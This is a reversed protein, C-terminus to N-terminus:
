AHNLVKKAHPPADKDEIKHYDMSIANESIDMATISKTRSYSRMMLPAYEPSPNQSYHFEPINEPVGTNNQVWDMFLAKRIEITQDQQFSSSSLLYAQDAHNAHFGIESMTTGDWEYLAIETASGMLLRFSMYPTADLDKAAKLPNKSSLLTPLIEGRSKSKRLYASHDKDEFYGNLLCGWFGQNNYAIWTGGSQPDIPGFIGHEPKIIQPPLEPVRDHREDRNMFVRFGNQKRFLSLTCM